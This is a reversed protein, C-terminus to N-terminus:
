IQGVKRPYGINKDTENSFISIKGKIHTFKVANTLLNRLITSLMNADALIETKESIKNTIEIEKNGAFSKIPYIIKTTFYQLNIKEPNFVIQGSHFSAWKLLDNLLEYTAVSTDRIISVMKKSKAKDYSDIARYLIESFGILANFPSRLDHSIISFLKDKEANIQQLELNQKKIKQESEIQVTIDAITGISRKPKGAENYTTKCRQNVHKIKENKLKLRHVINYDTKNKVSNEFSKFVFERDDKYIIDTFIEYNAPTKQPELGFIRYIEDSWLFKNTRYDLEWHGLHATKQAEKLRKENIKLAKETEKQKTIDATTGFIFFKKNQKINRGESRFWATKGDAKIVEYEFFDTTKPSSFVKQFKAQIEPLYEPKVYEFFRNWDSKITGKPLGLMEDVVPSIYTEEFEYRDNIKAKWIVITINESIQKFDESINNKNESNIM